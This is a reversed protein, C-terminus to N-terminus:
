PMVRPRLPPPGGSEAVLSTVRYPLAMTADPTTITLTIQEAVWAARGDAAVGIHPGDIETSFAAGAELFPGFVQLLDGREAKPVARWRLLVSFGDGGRASHTISRMTRCRVAVSLHPPPHRRRVWAPLSRSGQAGGQCTCCM